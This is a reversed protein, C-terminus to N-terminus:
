KTRSTTLDSAVRQTHQPNIKQEKLTTTVSASDHGNYSACLSTGTSLKQEVAAEFLIARDVRTVM